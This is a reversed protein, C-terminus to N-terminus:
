PKNEVNGNDKFAYNSITVTSPAITINLTSIDEFEKSAITAPNRNADTAM